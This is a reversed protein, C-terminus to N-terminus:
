AKESPRAAQIGAAKVSLETGAQTRFVLRRFLSGASLHEPRVPRELKPWCCNSSSPM